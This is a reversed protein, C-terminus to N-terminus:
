RTVDYILFPPKDPRLRKLVPISANFVPIGESTRGELVGRHAHGHFAVQV